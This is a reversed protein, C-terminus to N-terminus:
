SDLLPAWDLADLGPSRGGGGGLLALGRRARWGDGLRGWNAGGCSRPGPAARGEYRSAAWASRDLRAQVGGVDVLDDADDPHKRGRGATDVQLVDGRWAAQSRADTAPPARCGPNWSSWCPVAITTRAASSLASRTTPLRTSSTRITMVPTPAAPIAHAFMTRASLAVFTMTHLLLPASYLPRGSRSGSRAASASRVLGRRSCPM